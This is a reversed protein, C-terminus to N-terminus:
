RDESCRTSLFELAGGTLLLLIGQVPQTCFRRRQSLIAPKHSVCEVSDSDKQVVGSMCVCVCLHGTNGGCVSVCVDAYM